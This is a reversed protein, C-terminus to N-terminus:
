QGGGYPNNSSGDPAPLGGMMTRSTVEEVAQEQTIGNPGIADIMNYPSEDELAGASTLAKDALDLASPITARAPEGAHLLLVGGAALALAGSLLPLRWGFDGQVSRKM